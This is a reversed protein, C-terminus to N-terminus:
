KKLLVKSASIERITQDQMSHRERFYSLMIKEKLHLIEQWSGELHMIRAAYESQKSSLFADLLKYELWLEAFAKEVSEKKQAILVDGRPEQAKPHEVKPTAAPSEEKSNEKKEQSMDPPTFPLLEIVKVRQVALSIFEPYVLLVRQFPESYKKLLYGSLKKVKDPSVDDDIGHFFDHQVRKEDLYDAGLRGIVVMKDDQSTFRKIGEDAVRVNLGGLFGYDTTVLVIIVPADTKKKKPSAQAPTESKKNKEAKKRNQFISIGEEDETGVSLLSWADSLENMFIDSIKGKKQFLRFKFLATMKFIDTIEEMDRMFEMDKKLVSLQSSM